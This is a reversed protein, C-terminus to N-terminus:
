ANRTLKEIENELFKRDLYEISLTPPLGVAATLEEEMVKKVYEENGQTTMISDHIPFIPLDQRERNIRKVVRGFILYSEIRQLLIPLVQHHNEKFLRIFPYVEDFLKAFLRIPGGRNQNFASNSSFFVQFILTKLEGRSKVIGLEKYFVEGMQEYFSGSSTIKRYLDMTYARNEKGLIQRHLMILSDIISNTDLCYLISSHKGNIVIPNNFFPIETYNLVTNIDSKVWFNTDMPLNLLYPQSNSIDIMVLPLDNYTLANRLEKKINTLTSHYRYCNTDYGNRYDKNVFKEICKFSASYKNHAKLLYEPYVWQDSMESQNNELYPNSIVYEYYAENYRHALVEDINLNAKDYWKAVPQYLMSYDKPYESSIVEAAEYQSKSCDCQYPTSVKPYWIKTKNEKIAHQYKNIKIKLDKDGIEVTKLSAIYQDALKYGKCKLGPVYEKTCELIHTEEVLYDLYKKYYKGLVKKLTIACLPIYVGGDRIKKNNSLIEFLQDIIYYLYDVKFGPIHGTPHKQLIEDIELNRPLSFKKSL